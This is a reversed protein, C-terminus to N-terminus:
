LKEEFIKWEVGDWWAEGSVIIELHIYRGGHWFFDEPPPLESIIEMSAFPQPLLLIGNKPLFPPLPKCYEKEPTIALILGEETLQYNSGTFTEKKRELFPPSAPLLPPLPNFAGVRSFFFRRLQAIKAVVKNAPERGYISFTTHM